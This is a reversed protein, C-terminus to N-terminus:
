GPNAQRRRKGSVSANQRRNKKNAVKVCKYANKGIRKKESRKPCTCGRKNKSLKGKICKVTKKNVTKKKAPKKKKNTQEQPAVSRDQAAAVSAKKANRKVCKVKGGRLKVLRKNGTCACRKNLSRKGKCSEVKPKVPQPPRIILADIPQDPEATPAPGMTMDGSAGSNCRIHISKSWGEAGILNAKVTFQAHTNKSFKYNRVYEAFFRGNKHKTTVTHVTSESPRNGFTRNLRFEVPGAQNTEFRAKLQLVPCNAGPSAANYVGQFTTLFLDADNIVMDGKDFGWASSGAAPSKYGVCRLKVNVPITKRYDSPVGARGVIGPKNFGVGLTLNVTQIAIVDKNHQVNKTVFNCKNLIKRGQANHSLGTPFLSGYMNFAIERELTRVGIRKSVGADYLLPFVTGGCELNGCVGLAIGFNEIRGRRMVVRLDGDARAFSNPDIRTYTKGNPAFVRIEHISSLELSASKVKAAEAGATACLLAAVGLLSKTLPKMAKGKKRMQGDSPVPPKQITESIGDKVM